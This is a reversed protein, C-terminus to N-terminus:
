GFVSNANDAYASACEIVARLREFKIYVTEFDEGCCVMGRIKDIIKDNSM